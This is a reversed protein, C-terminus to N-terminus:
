GCFVRTPDKELEDIIKDIPQNSDLDPSAQLM